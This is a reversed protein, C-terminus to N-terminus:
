KASYYSRKGLGDDVIRREVAGNDVLRDLISSVTALDVVFGVSDEYAPDEVNEESWGIEMVESTIERLEFARDKNDCLHDIIAQEISYRHEGAQFREEDIPM